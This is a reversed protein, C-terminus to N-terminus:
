SGTLVPMLLSHQYIMGAATTVTFVIRYTANDTGVQVTVKSVNGALTAASLITATVDNGSRDDAVVTHSVPPDSGVDDTFDIGVQFKEAPRKKRDLVFQTM